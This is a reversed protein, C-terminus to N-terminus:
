RATTSPRSGSTSSRTASALADGVTKKDMALLRNPRMSLTPFAGLAADLASDDIQEPELQEAIFGDWGLRAARALDAPQQGFTLRNVLYVASDPAPLGSSGAAATAAGAAAINFLNRRSLGGKPV